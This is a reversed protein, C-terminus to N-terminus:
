FAPQTFCDMDFEYPFGLILVIINGIDHQINAKELHKLIKYKYSQTISDLFFKVDPNNKYLKNLDAVTNKNIRPGISGQCGVSGLLATPGQCGTLGECGTSGLPATPGQLYTNSQM